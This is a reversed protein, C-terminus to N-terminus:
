AGDRYAAPTMEFMQGFRRTFHPVTKFGCAYTVESVTADTERLWHAAHTLRFRWLVEMPPLGLAEDAKRYLTARSMAMARAMAEVGFDEDAMHQRLTAELRAGFNRDIREGPFEMPVFGLPQGEARLREALRKRSALANHVRHRLEEPDFPKVLYDDAGGKLASLRSDRSARATVMILPLYALEPDGRVARCLEDGDMEPMMVDCLILDPVEARAAQLGLAGNAAEVVRYRDSLHRRLYGRLEDNDEVVLITPRDAAADDAFPEPAIPEIALREPVGGTPAAGEPVGTERGVRGRAVAALSGVEAASEDDGDAPGDIPVRVTFRSGRGQESTVEVRGGHLETVEQVLALGLGAGGHVRRSSDDVQHFREFIHPLESPPIGPGDDDVTVILERAEDDVEARFGVRGGRPTFKLANALLNSYVKEIQDTDVVATTPAPPLTAEFAIGRNEALAGFSSALRELLPHLDEARRHLRLTGSELRAVDLLQEVLQGLRRGSALVTAVQRRVSDSTPGLRGDLVDQLPGQVLTLPTRLEHSVNAFFRSKAEDLSRLERAQSEVVGLAGEVEEKALALEHTREDVVQELHLERARLHRVRLHYVLWLAGSAALALLAAFAGTEHFFPPVVLDVVAERASTVGAGSISRVRFRHTGHPLNGYAVQRQPGVDVWDEDVGDIRVEYRVGEHGSLLTAAYRLDVRRDGLALTLRATQGTDSELPPLLFERSTQIGRIRVGPATQERALVAAPDVVAAGKFTPFWLRGDPSKYGYWGSPEADGLGSDSGYGRGRVRDIRGALFDDLDQVSVRHIGRNGAMWLNGFDDELIATVVDDWLGDAARVERFEGDRYRLLGELYRGIWLSGDRGIHLARGALNPLDDGEFVEFRDDAISGLGSRGTVWVTGDRAVALDRLGWNDPMFPGAVEPGGVAYPRVRYGGDGGFWLLGDETPHEAVRVPARVPIVISDGARTVGIVRAGADVSEAGMWVTGRRDAAAAAVLSQEPTGEFLTDIGDPGFRTVRWEADVALVSGDPGASLRFVQGDTLGEEAGYLTVARPRIRYLGDTVTGIWVNGEPDRAAATVRAGPALPLTAVREGSADFAEVVGPRYTWLRQQLDILVPVRGEDPSLAALPAGGLFTVDLRGEALVSFVGQDPSLPIPWADPFPQPEVVIAAPIDIVNGFVFPHLRVNDRPPVPRRGAVSQNWGPVFTAARRFQDGELALVGLDDLVWVRGDDAQWVERLIWEGAAVVHTRGRTYALLQQGATVWITDGRGVGIGALGGSEETVRSDIPHTEFELGDFSTLRGSALMWLLGQDDVALDPVYMGPLGDELALRDIGLRGTSGDLPTTGVHFDTPSQALTPTTHVVLAVLPLWPVLRRWPVGLVRTLARGARPGGRRPEMAGM